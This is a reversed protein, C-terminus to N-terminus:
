WGGFWVLGSGGGGFFFLFATIDVQRFSTVPTIGIGTPMNADQCTRSQEAAVDLQCGNSTGSFLRYRSNKSHLTM